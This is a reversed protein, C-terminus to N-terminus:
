LAFFIADCTEQIPQPVGGFINPTIWPYEDKLYSEAIALCRIGVDFSEGFLADAEIIDDDDILMWILCDYSQVTYFALNVQEMHKEIKQGQCFATGPLQVTQDFKIADNLCNVFEQLDIRAKNRREEALTFLRAKQNGLNAKWAALKSEAVSKENM